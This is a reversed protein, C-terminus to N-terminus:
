ACICALPLSLVLGCPRWFYLFSPGSRAGALPCACLWPGRGRPLAQPRSPTQLNILVSQCVYACPEVFPCRARRSGARGGRLLPRPLAPPRWVPAM